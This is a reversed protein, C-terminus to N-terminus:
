APAEGDGFEERFLRLKEDAAYGIGIVPLMTGIRYAQAAETNVWVVDRGPIEFRRECAPWGLRLRVWLIPEEVIHVGPAMDEFQLENKLGLEETYEGNTIRVKGDVGCVANRCFGLVDVTRPSNWPPPLHVMAKPWSM